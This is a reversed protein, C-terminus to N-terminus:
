EYRQRDDDKRDRDTRESQHNRPEAVKKIAAIPVCSVRQVSVMM